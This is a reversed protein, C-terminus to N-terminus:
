DEFRTKGEEERSVEGNKWIEWDNAFMISLDICVPLMRADQLRSSSNASEDACLEEFGVNRTGQPQPSVNKIDSIERPMKASKYSNDHFSQVLKESLTTSIPFIKPLWAFISNHAFHFSPTRSRPSLVVRGWKSGFRCSVVVFVNGCSCILNSLVPLHFSM